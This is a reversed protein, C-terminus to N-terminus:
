LLKSNKLFNKSFFHRVSACVSLCVWSAAKLKLNNLVIMRYNVKKIINTVNPTNNLGSNFFIGIKKIKPSQDIIYTSATLKIDKIITRYRPKCTILLKSKDANIKLYNINYYAELLLYFKNIYEQLHEHDFSSIINTSDDMYNITIHDTDNFNIKEHKTMKTYIDDNMIKHLNTIENTYITYLLASLKSGQRVSCQPSKRIESSFTDVTVYQTRNTM